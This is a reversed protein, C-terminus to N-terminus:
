GDGLTPLKLTIEPLTVSIPQPLFMCSGCYSQCLTSWFYRYAAGNLKHPLLFPGIVCDGVIGAWDNISFQSKGRIKQEVKFNNSCWVTRLKLTRQLEVTRSRLGQWKVRPSLLGRHGNSLLSPPGWLRDPHQPSSFFRASHPILGLSDLGYGTGIHVSSDEWCILIRNIKIKHPM